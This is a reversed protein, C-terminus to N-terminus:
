RVVQLQINFAITPAEELCTLTITNAGTEIKSICNYAELEALATTTDSSLVVDVIPVDSALIGSVTVTQTYPVAGSWSLPINVTYNTVNAGSEVTKYTGDDSLYKTGDGTNIIGDLVTKNNHNHSNDIVEQTVNELVEKNDFSPINAVKEDVYNFIDQAKGQTDYVSALMDGAGMGDAGDLITATTTGNADTITLTTTKGIKSSTITPSIGDAGDKGDVGNVGDIGDKGPLGPEGPEGDAGDQGKEAICLWNSTETPLIGKSNIKCVFLSGEYVVKNGPVYEKTNNYVEYVKLAEMKALEESVQTVLQQLVPFNTDTSPDVGDVLDGVVQYAFRSSSLKKDDEYVEVSMQHTGASTVMAESLIVQIRGITEDLVTVYEGISNIVSTGDERLVSATITTYGTIDLPKNDMVLDIIFVNSNADNQVIGSVTNIIKNSKVDLAIRYEKLIM